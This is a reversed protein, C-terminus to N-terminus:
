HWEIRLPKKWPASLGWVGPTTSAFWLICIPGVFAGSALTWWKDYFINMVWQEPGLILTLVLCGWQTIFKNAARTALKWISPVSVEKAGRRERWEDRREVKWVDKVDKHRQEINKKPSINTLLSAGVVCCLVAGVLHHALIARRIFTNWRMIWPPINPDPVTGSEWRTESVCFLVAWQSNLDSLSIYM